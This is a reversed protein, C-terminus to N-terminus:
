HAIFLAGGRGGCIFGLKQMSPFPNQSSTPKNKHVAESCHESASPSTSLDRRCANITKAKQVSLHYFFTCKSERFRQRKHPNINLQFSKIGVWKAILNLTKFNYFPNYFVKEM